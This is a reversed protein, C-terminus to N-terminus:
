WFLLYVFFISEVPLVIWCLLSYTKLWLVLCIIELMIWCQPKIQDSHSSDTSKGPRKKERSCRPCFRREVRWLTEVFELTKVHEQRWSCSKTGPLACPACPACPGCQAVCAVGLWTEFDRHATDISSCPITTHGPKAILLKPYIQLTSLNPAWNTQKTMDKWKPFPLFHRSLKQNEVGLFAGPLFHTATLPHELM